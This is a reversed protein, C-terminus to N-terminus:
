TNGVAKRQRPKRPSKAAQRAAKKAERQEANVLDLVVRIIELARDPGAGKVIAEAIAV